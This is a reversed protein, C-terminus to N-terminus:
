HCALEVGLDIQDTDRVTLLKKIKSYTRKDEPSLNATSTNVKRETKVNLFPSYEKIKFATAGAFMTRSKPLKENLQRGRLDQNFSTADQFLGKM